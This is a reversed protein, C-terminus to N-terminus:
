PSDPPWTPSVPSSRAAVADRDVDGVRLLLGVASNTWRPLTISPSASPRCAPRARPRDRRARRAARWGNPSGDAARPAARPARCGHRASPSAPRARGAASRSRGDWASRRRVFQPSRPARWRPPAAPGRRDLRPQHGDVVGDREPAMASNPSFYPSSTRTTEIPVALAPRCPRCSRNSPVTRRCAHARVPSIPRTRMERRSHPRRRRAGCRPASRRPRAAGIEVLLLLAQTFADGRRQLHRRGFRRRADLRQDLLAAPELALQGLGCFSASPPPAPAPPRLRLGDGADAEEALDGLADAGFSRLPRTSSAM